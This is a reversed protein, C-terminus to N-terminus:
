RFSQLHGRIPLNTDLKTEKLGKEGSHDILIYIHERELVGM